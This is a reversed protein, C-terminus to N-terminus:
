LHPSKSYIGCYYGEAETHVVENDVYRVCGLGGDSIDVVLVVVWSSSIIDRIDKPVGLFPVGGAGEADGGNSGLDRERLTANNIGGGQVDDSM